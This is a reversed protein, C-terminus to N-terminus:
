LGLRRWRRKTLERRIPSRQELLKELRCWGYPDVRPGLEDAPMLYDNLANIKAHLKTGSFIAIAAHQRVVKDHRCPAHPADCGELQEGLTSM